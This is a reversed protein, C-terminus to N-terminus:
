KISLVNHSPAVKLPKATWQILEKFYFHWCPVLQCSLGQYLIDLTTLLWQMWRMALLQLAVGPNVDMEHVHVEDM